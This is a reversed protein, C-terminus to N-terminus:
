LPAISDGLCNGTYDRGNTYKSSISNYMHYSNSQGNTSMMFGTATLIILFAVYGCAEAVFRKKAFNGRMVKIDEVEHYADLVKTSAQFVKERRKIEDRNSIERKPIKMKEMASHHLSLAKV